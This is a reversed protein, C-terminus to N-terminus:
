LVVGNLGLVVFMVGGFFMGIGIGIGIGVGNHAEGLGAALCNAGLQSSDQRSALWPVFIAAQQLQIETKQRKDLKTLM